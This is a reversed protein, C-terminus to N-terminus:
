LISKPNLVKERNINLTKITPKIIFIDASQNICKIKNIFNIFNENIENKTRNKITLVINNNINYKLYVDTELLLKYNNNIEPTKKIRICPLIKKPFM